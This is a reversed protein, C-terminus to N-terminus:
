VPNPDIDHERGGQRALIRQAAIWDIHKAMLYIRKTLAVPAASRHLQV